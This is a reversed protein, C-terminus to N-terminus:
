WFRGQKSGEEEGEDDREEKTTDDSRAEPARLMMGEPARAGPWGMRRIWVPPDHSYALRFALSEREARDRPLVEPFRVNYLQEFKPRLLAAMQAGTPQEEHDECDVLLAVMFELNAYNRSEAEEVGDVWSFFDSTIEKSSTPARRLGSARVHWALVADDKPLHAPRAFTVRPAHAQLAGANDVLLAALSLVHQRALRAQEARAAMPGSWAAAILRAGEM